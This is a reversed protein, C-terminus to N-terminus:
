RKTMVTIFEQGAREKVSDTPAYAIDISFKADFLEYIDDKAMAFPPGQKTNIMWWLSILKGGPKLLDSVTMVYTRRRSPDIASFFCHELVYDYYGDYEHINFVDRQLLFGTKGSVGAQEFKAHTSAIASPAFDIGTVAFGKRIFPMCDHGNGCGLVAIKGPAVAYPSKLYTEIPPAPKGLDWPTRKARYLNDWWEADDVGMNKSQQQQQM